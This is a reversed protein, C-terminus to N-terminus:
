CALKEGVNANRISEYNRLGGCLLFVLSNNCSSAEEKQRETDNKRKAYQAHGTMVPLPTTLDDRMQVAFIEESSEPRMEACNQGLSFKGNYPVGQVFSGEERKGEFWLKQIGLRPFMGAKGHISTNTPVFLTLLHTIM